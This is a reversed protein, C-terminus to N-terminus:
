CVCSPTFNGCEVCLPWKPHDTEDPLDADWDVPNEDMSPMLDFDDDVEDVCCQFAERDEWDLREFELYLAALLDYLRKKQDAKM